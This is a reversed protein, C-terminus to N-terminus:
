LFCEESSLEVGFSVVEFAMGEDQRTDMSGQPDLPDGYPFEHDNDSAQSAAHAVTPHLQSNTLM